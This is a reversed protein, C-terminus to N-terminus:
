RISASCICCFVLSLFPFPSFSFFSLFFLLSLARSFHVYLLSLFLFFLQLRSFPFFYSYFLRLSFFPSLSLSSKSEPLYSLNIKKRIILQPPAAAHKYLHLRRLILMIPHQHQMASALAFTRQKRLLYRTSKKIM